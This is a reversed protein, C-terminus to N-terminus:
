FSVRVNNKTMHVRKEDEGITGAKLHTGDPDANYEEM